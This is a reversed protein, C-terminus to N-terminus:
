AVPPGSQTPSETALKALLRSWRHFSFYIICLLLSLCGAFNPQKNKSETEPSRLAEM